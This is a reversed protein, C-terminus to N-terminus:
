LVRQPITITSPRRLPVMFSTHMITSSGSATVSHFTRGSSPNGQYGRFIFVTGCGVEACEHIGGFNTTGYLNGAADFILGANPGAGDTGNNNFNHLVKQTWSGNEEPSLEFVTGFGHVGGFTTTGYLNGAADMILGAYPRYGDTGVTNFSRLM